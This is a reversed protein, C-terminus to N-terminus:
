VRCSGNHNGKLVMLAAMVKADGVMNDIICYENPMHATEAITSWVVTDMGINRLHAAVTGGGIGIVDANVGYVQSVAEKLRPVLPSDASTPLSTQKQVTETTITVGYKEEVKLIISAIKDMVTQISVSPLIRCDMYFVDEGPLTNVNPVNPEKKSPVFTSAPPDFLPDKETFEMNLANLRLVLDSAAVFANKGLDPRSAHCQRGRTNIKLWLVSKEAIEIATSDETGSDPVLVLDGKNFLNYTKILYQIGYQSGTEEDAVFLLKVTNRPKVGREILAHAAFCSAVLSQQNDEVGRGTLRGDKEAVEYPSTEWLKLDGPPVVDMHTMIWFANEENEGPITVVINPRKKSPVRDDPVDYQIVDEFNLKKLWSLLVRSKDWEGTGGSQPAIAPVASLEKQMSVMRDRNGTIHKYVSDPVKM